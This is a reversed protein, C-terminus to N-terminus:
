TEAQHHINKKAELYEKRNGTNRIVGNEDVYYKRKRHSFDGYILRRISKAKKGNM